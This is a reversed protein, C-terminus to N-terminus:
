TVEPRSSGGPRSRLITSAMEIWPNPWRTARTENNLRHDSPRKPVICHRAHIRYRDLPDLVGSCPGDHGALRHLLVEGPPYEFLCPAEMALNGAILDARQPVQRIQRRHDTNAPDPDFVFRHTEAEIREFHETTRESDVAEDFGQQTELALVKREILQDGILGSGLQSVEREGSRGVAIVPAPDRPRGVFQVAPGDDVHM